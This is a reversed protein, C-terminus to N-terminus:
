FPPRSRAVEYATVDVDHLTIGPDPANARARWAEIADWSDWREYNYIRRPDVPDGLEIQGGQGGDGRETRGQAGFVARDVDQDVVRADHCRGLPPGGYVAAGQEAGVLGLASPPDGLLDAAHREAARDALGHTTTPQHPTTRRGRAAARTTRHGQHLVPSGAARGAEAGASLGSVVAAAVRRRDHRVPSPRRGASSLLRHSTRSGWVATAVPYFRRGRRGSAVHAGGHGTPEQLERDVQRGHVDVRM